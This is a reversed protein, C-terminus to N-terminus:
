VHVLLCTFPTSVVYVSWCCRRTIVTLLLQMVFLMLHCRCIRSKSVSLCVVDALTQHCSRMQVCVNSCLALWCSDFATLLWLMDAGCNFSHCQLLCSLEAEANGVSHIQQRWAKGRDHWWSFSQRETQWNSLLDPHIEVCFEPYPCLCACVHACMCTCMRACLCVCVCVVVRVFVYIINSHEFM